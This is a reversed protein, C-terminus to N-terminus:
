ESLEDLIDAERLKTLFVDFDAKATDEDIDYKDILKNIVEDYSIENQLLKFVFEGSSNMSIFINNSNSSNNVSVAFFNGSFNGLVFESKLKM